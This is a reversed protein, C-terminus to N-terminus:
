VDFCKSNRCRWWHKWLIKMHCLSIFLPMSTCSQSETLYSTSQSGYAWSLEMLGTSDHRPRIVGSLNVCWPWVVCISGLGCSCCIPWILVVEGGTVEAIRPMRVTRYLAQLQSRQSTLQQHSVLSPSFLLTFSSDLQSSAVIFLCVWTFIKQECCLITFYMGKPLEIFCRM